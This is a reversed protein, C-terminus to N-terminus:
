APVLRPGTTSAGPPPICNTDDSVLIECSSSATDAVHDTVRVTYAFVGSTLPVGIVDGTIPDLTLGDPLGGATIAFTYPVTGGLAVVASEYAVGVFAVGSACSISLPIAEDADGCEHTGTDDDALVLYPIERDVGDDSLWAPTAAQSGLATIQMQARLSPIGAGTMEHLNLANTLSFAKGVWVTSSTADKAGHFLSNQPPNGVFAGPKAVMGIALHSDRRVITDSVKCISGFIMAKPRKALFTISPAGQNFVGVNAGINGGLALIPFYSDLGTQAIVNLTVSTADWSTVAIERNVVGAPTVTAILRSSRQYSCANTTGGGGDSGAVCAGKGECKVSWGFGLTATGARQDSGRVLPNCFAVLVKAAFGIPLVLAGDATPQAFVITSLLGTGGLALAHIYTNEADPTNIVTEVTCQGLVHPLDQGVVSGLFRRANGLIAINLVGSMSYVDSTGIVTNDGSLFQGNAAAVGAALGRGTDFGIGLNGWSGGTGGMFGNATIFAIPDFDTNGDLFVVQQGAGGTKLRFAVAAAQLPM